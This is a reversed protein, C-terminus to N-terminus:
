EGWFEAKCDLGFEAKSDLWLEGKGVDDLVDDKDGADEEGANGVWECKRGCGEETEIVAGGDRECSAMGV